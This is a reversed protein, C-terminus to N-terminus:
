ARPGGAVCAACKAPKGQTIHDISTTVPKGCDCTFEVNHPPTPQQFAHPHDKDAAGRPSCPVVVTALPHPVLAKLRLGGDAYTAEVWFSGGNSIGACRGCRCGSLLEFVACEVHNRLDALTVDKHWSEGPFAALLERGLEDIFNNISNRDQDLVRRTEDILPKIQQAFHVQRAHSELRWRQWMHWVHVIGGGVALVMVIFITLGFPGGQLYIV